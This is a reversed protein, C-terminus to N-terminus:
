ENMLQELEKDLDLGPTEQPEEIQLVEPQRSELKSLLLNVEERTYTKGKGNTQSSPQHPMKWNRHHQYQAKYPAKMKEVHALWVKCKGSDHGEGHLQCFKKTHYKSKKFHSRDNNGLGLEPHARKTSSKGAKADRGKKAEPISEALELREAYDLIDEMSASSENFNPTEEIKRVWHRPLTRLFGIKTEEQQWGVNGSGEESPYKLLQNTLEVYRAGAERVTMKRPKRAEYRLYMKQKELAWRPFVAVRIAEIGKSCNENTESLGRIAGEFHSRAMGSLLRKAMSIRAKGNTLQLNSCIDEFDREWLLFEEPTGMDFIYYWQSFSPSTDDTPIARL